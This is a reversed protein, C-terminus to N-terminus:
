ITRPRNLMILWGAGIVSPAFTVVHLTVGIALATELPVNVAGLASITVGEFLGLAAISPPLTVGIMLAVMLVLAGSWSEVGYARMVGYNAGVGLGWTFLSWVACRGFTSRDRLATLSVFLRRVRPAFKLRTILRDLRTVWPGAPMFAILGFEILVLAAVLGISRLALSYWLPVTVTLAVILSLAALTLWDWAKELAISGLVREVSLGPMPAGESRGAIVSRAVDGLRLPLVFNLVQGILLARLLLPGRLAIPQLLAAWRKLRTLMTALIIITSLAIWGGDALMLAHALRAGDIDRAILWIIGASILIGAALTLWRVSKM